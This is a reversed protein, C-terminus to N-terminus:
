YLWPPAFVRGNADIRPSDLPLLRPFTAATMRRTMIRTENLAGTSPLRWAVTVIVGKKRYADAIPAMSPVTPRVSPNRCYSQAWVGTDCRGPYYVPFPSPM